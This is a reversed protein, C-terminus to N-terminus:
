ELKSWPVAKHVTGKDVEKVNCTEKGEFVATIEVDVAKKAGVPKYQVMQGKEYGEPEKKEEPEEPDASAEEILDVVETWDKAKEMQKESLGADLGAQQLKAISDEDEADAKKVLARMQKVTLKEDGDGATASGKDDDDGGSGSTKGKTPKEDATKDKVGDDTSGNYETVGRWDYNVRGDRENGDRDTWKGGGWTRFRFHPAAEKLSAAADELGDADIDTTDLGLKRMENLVWAIHDSVSERKRGPTDCIAEPGLPVRQGLIPVGKFEAPEVVTGAAIFFFEGENDGSKYVDFRCDTLQAIGNEIGSPLDGGASLLTEDDKHENVAKALSSGLKGALSSKTTQKPM